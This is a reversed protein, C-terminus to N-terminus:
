YQASREVAVAMRGGELNMKREKWLVTTILTRISVGTENKGTRELGCGISNKVSYTTKFHEIM